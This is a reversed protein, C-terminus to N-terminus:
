TSGSESVPPAGRVQTLPQHLDRHHSTDDHPAKHALM